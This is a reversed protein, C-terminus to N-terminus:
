WLSEMVQVAEFGTYACFEEVTVLSRRGKGYYHRVRTLLRRSTRESKGTLLMVDKTYIIM